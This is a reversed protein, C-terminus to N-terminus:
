SFHLTCTSVISFFHLCCLSSLFADPPLLFLPRPTSAAPAPPRYPRPAKRRPALRYGGIPTSSASLLRWREADPGLVQEAQLFGVPSTPRRLPWRPSRSPKSCASLGAGRVGRRRPSTPKLSASVTINKFIFFLRM